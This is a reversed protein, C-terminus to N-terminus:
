IGLKDFDSADHREAIGSHSDRNVKRGRRVAVRNHIETGWRLVNTYSDVQLFEKADYFGAVVM